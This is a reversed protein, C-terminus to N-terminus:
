RDGVLRHRVAGVPRRIAALGDRLWRRRRTRAVSRDVAEVVDARTKVIALARIDQLERFDVFESCDMRALRRLDITPSPFTACGELAGCLDLTVMTRQCKNCVGCNEDSALEYCVRLARLATPCEALREIKETRLYAAADFVIATGWSSFLPDTVAHSGWPRATRYSGSGPVYVTHFRRELSLAVSALGAGHALSSWQAGSWRTSRLNTAVDIFQKGLERAIGEHRDRLRTFADSRDLPIDFGWVTILDDIPAREAPPALDRRRMATFFSDVGGSFFAGVRAPRVDPACEVADAEISAVTLRPYWSHWIRMLREANALLPQDVSFPVRLSEGTHAALPLLCAVWPNGSISIEGMHARPVDFWYEESAVRGTEYHVDARLRVRTTGFPSDEIRVDRVEM